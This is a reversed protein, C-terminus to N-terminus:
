RGQPGHHALSPCRGRRGRHSHAKAEHRTHAGPQGDVVVDRTALDVMLHEDAYRAPRELYPREQARKMVARVRMQLEDIDYPKALYDDAGLELGRVRAELESSATVMIIPTDWVERIRQCTLWGDMLPMAIDLIILDPRREYALRLASLGDGAEIVEIDEARLAMTLLARADAEDDVILIRKRQQTPRAEAAPAAAAPQRRTTALNQRPLGVTAAPSLAM